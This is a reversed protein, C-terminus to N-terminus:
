ALRRRCIERCCSSPYAPRRPAGAGVSARSRCPGGGNGRARKPATLPWWRSAGASRAATTSRWSFALLHQVAVILALEITEWAVVSEQPGEPLMRDPYPQLYRVESGAGPLQAPVLTRDNRKELFDLCANTAIRYLLSTFGIGRERM